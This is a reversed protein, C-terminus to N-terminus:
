KSVKNPMVRRRPPLNNELWDRLTRADELSMPIESPMAADTSAHPTVPVFVIIKPENM